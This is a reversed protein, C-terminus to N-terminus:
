APTVIRLLKKVLGRVRRVARTLGSPPNLHDLLVRDRRARGFRLLKERYEAGRECYADAAAFAENKNHEAYENFDSAGWARDDGIHCTLYADEIIVLRSSVAALSYLFSKMVNMAGICTHSEVCERFIKAKFVLCDTGPHASGVESLSLASLGSGEWNGSLTRRNISFADIGRQAIEALADYFHPVPIIDANTYIIYDEDGAQSLAAGIIDYLLPLKKNSEFEAVDGVYRNICEISEGCEFSLHGDGNELAFILSVDAKTNKKAQAMGEITVRQTQDIGEPKGGTFPNVVHFFKPSSAVVPLSGVEGLPMFHWARDKNKM